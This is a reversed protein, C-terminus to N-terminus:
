EGGLCCRRVLHEAALECSLCHLQALFLIDSFVFRFVGATAPQAKLMGDRTLSFLLIELLLSCLVIAVQKPLCDGKGCGGM